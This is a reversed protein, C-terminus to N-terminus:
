WSRIELDEFPRDLPLTMRSGTYHSIYVAVLAELSVVADPGTSITNTHGDLRDVLHEVANAFGQEYDDDWTWAGDIGPMEASIHTGDELRWYRWEGDDLNISLKGQTGIFQYNISSPTRPITCDIMAHTDGLSLMVNGASDDVRVDAALETASENEDTLTGWATDIDADLLFSLLDIAHSANRMLEMRSQVAVSRIDGLLDGAQIHDRLQQFKDTFRLTYNVVLETETDECIAIMEEAEALSSAIPKECLVIDVDAKAAQLVHDHHFVAPTCVSLIDLAEADLMAALSRYRHSPDIDWTESFATLSDDDVDAAAVLEVGSVSTYGGAHSADPRGGSDDHVGITGRGAVGGTGVIGARYASM